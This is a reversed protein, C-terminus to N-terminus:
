PQEPVPGGAAGDGRPRAIRYRYALGFVILAALSLVAWPLLDQAGTASYGVAVVAASMPLVGLATTWLFTWLSLSTRGLAFNFVSIPFLPVFRMVIAVRWDGGKIHQDVWNLAKQPVTRPKRSPGLVRGLEFALWASIMSGAWSVALGGWFGFLAGNVALLFEGPVPLFTHAVM